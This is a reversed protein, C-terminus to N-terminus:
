AGYRTQTGAKAPILPFSDPAISADASNAIIGDHLVGYAIMALALVVWVVLWNIPHSLFKLNVLNNQVFEPM